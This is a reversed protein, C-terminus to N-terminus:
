SRYCHRSDLGDLALSRVPPGTINWEAGDFEIRDKARITLTEPDRPVNFTAAVTANLQAAERREQGTGYIIWASRDFLPAWNEVEGGYDDQTVTVRAFTIRDRRKGAPTGM